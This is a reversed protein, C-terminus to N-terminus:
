KDIFDKKNNRIFKSLIHKLNESKYYIDYFKSDLENFPNEEDFFSKNYGEVTGNNYKAIKDNEKDYIENANVSLDKFKIAGVLKLASPLHKHFQVSSNLYFQNYGGKDLLNIIYIAQRSENWSMVTNYKVENNKEEKLYLNDIILQLLNADSTTDIIQETLVKYVPRKKYTEVSKFLQEKFEDSLEKNSKESCSSQNIIIMIVGLLIQFM